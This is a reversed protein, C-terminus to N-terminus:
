ACDYAADRASIDPLANETHPTIDIILRFIPMMVRWRLSALIRKLLRPTDILAPPLTMTMFAGLLFFIMFDPLIM